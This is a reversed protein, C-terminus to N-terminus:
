DLACTRVINWLTANYAMLIKLKVMELNLLTSNITKNKFYLEEWEITSDLILYDRTNLFKSIIEATNPEHNMGSDFLVKKFENLKAGLSDATNQKYLIDEAFLKSNIEFSDINSTAVLDLSALLKHQLLEIYDDLSDKYAKIIIVKLYYPKVRPELLDGKEMMSILSSTEDNWFKNVEYMENQWLKDQLGQEAISQSKSTLSILM